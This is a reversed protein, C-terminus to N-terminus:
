AALKESHVTERVQQRAANRRVYAELNKWSSIDLKLADKWSLITYAYADAVTYQEGMLYSKDALHKDLYTFRQALKDRFLQKAPEALAPNWLPSFSKHLESSIFTLWEIVRYRELTGYAPILKAQPNLDGLYQLIAAIETFVEGNDLVLAPVYGKPNISYYDTGDALKHTKLDVAVAEFPLGLENLVIHPALSCAGPSYYLKM